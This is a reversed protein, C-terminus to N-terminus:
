GETVAIAEALAKRAAYLREPNKEFHTLDTVLSRMQGLARRAQAAAAPDAEALRQKLLWVYELDELGERKMEWRISDCPGAIVPTASKERCAPYLLQGDGNGFTGTGDPTYSMATVWPNNRWYTTSWYLDGTVGYKEMMWFLIRHEIAPHDIFNNPYPTHPGCCVYWWVQEGLKQREHCRQENYMPLVPVWLDIYGYLAPEPQETLLRRLRPHTQRLLKMGQIVYPYQEETPEDFWYVYAKDLWGKQELHRTYEGFIRVFDQNFEPTFQQHGLLDGPIGGWNFGTFGRGDLNRHAAEDFDALDFEIEGPAGGQKEKWQWGHGMMPSYPAIRHESFDQLYLETVRERDAASTVGQYGFAGDVGLGYATETHTEDTLAFDFVTLRLPIAFQEPGASITVKGEYLGAGAGKPVHVTIWVPQNGGPPVLFEAGPQYPVLPDPWWGPYGLSDTPIKVEVYDVLDLRIESAPIRGTRSTLDTVRLKAPTASSRFQAAIQPINGLTPPEGGAAAPRAGTLVLQVPEYENAAAALEVARGTQGPVPSERMVKTTANVTWIALNGSGALQKGGLPQPAPLVAFSSRGAGLLAGTKAATWLEVLSCAGAERPEFRLTKPAAGGAVLRGAGGPYLCEILLRTGPGLPGAGVAVEYTGRSVLQVVPPPPRDGSLREGLWAVGFRAEEHFGQLLHSWSSLEPAALVARHRCFNLGFPERRSIGLAAFPIRMEVTWARPSKAVASQWAASWSLDIGAATLARDDYQTNLVNVGFHRYGSKRLSPAVFLEVSDDRWPQDDRTAQGAVLTDMAAEQCEFAVFLAEDRHGVLARTAQTPAGSPDGVLVFPSAVSAKAWAGDSLSGDITPAAALEPVNTAPHIELEVAGRVIAPFLLCLVLPAM